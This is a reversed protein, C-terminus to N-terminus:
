LQKKLNANLLSPLMRLRERIRLQFTNVALVSLMLINLSLYAIM